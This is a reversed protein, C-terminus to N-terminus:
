SRGALVIVGDTDDGLDGLDGGLVGLPRAWASRLGLVAVNLLRRM